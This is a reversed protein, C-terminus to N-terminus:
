IIQIKDRKNAYYANYIARKLLMCYHKKPPLNIKGFIMIDINNKKKIM